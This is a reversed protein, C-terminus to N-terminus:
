LQKRKQQTFTMTSFWSLLDGKIATCNVFLFFQVFGLSIIWYNDNCLAGVQTIMKKDHETKKKNYHLFEIYIKPIPGKELETICTDEKVRTEKEEKIANRRKLSKNISFNLCLYFSWFRNNMVLRTEGINGWKKGVKSGGM